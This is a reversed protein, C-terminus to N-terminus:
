ETHRRYTGVYLEFIILIIIILRSIGPFLSLSFPFPPLLPFCPLNLYFTIRRKTERRQRKLTSTPDNCPM